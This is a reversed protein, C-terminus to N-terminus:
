ICGENNNIDFSFPPIIDTKETSFYHIIKYWQKKNNKPHYYDVIWKNLKPLNNKHWLQKEINVSWSNEKEINNFIYEFIEIQDKNKPKISLLEVSPTNIIVINDNKPPEYKTTQSIESETTTLIIEVTKTEYPIDPNLEPEFTPQITKSKNFKAKKINTKDKPQKIKTKIPKPTKKPNILKIEPIENSEIIIPSTENTDINPISNTGVIMEIISSTDNDVDNLVSESISNIQKKTFKAKKDPKINKKIKKDYM